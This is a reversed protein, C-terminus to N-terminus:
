WDPKVINLITNIARIAVVSGPDADFGGGDGNYQSRV